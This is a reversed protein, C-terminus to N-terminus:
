STASAPERAQEPPASPSEPWHVGCMDLWTNVLDFGSTAIEQWLAEYSPPPVSLDAEVTGDHLSMTDAFHSALRRMPENEPLCIMSLSTAGRNRAVVIARRLLEAGIGRSRWAREVSVAIEGSGPGEAQNLELEAVGRLTGDIFVGIFHALNWDLGACRQCIVADCTPSFFRLAREESDLRLYHDRILDIESPLLQRYIIVPAAGEDACARAIPHLLSIAIADVAIL